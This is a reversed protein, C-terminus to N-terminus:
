EVDERLTEERIAQFALTLLARGVSERDFNDGVRLYIHKEGWHDEFRCQVDRPVIIHLWEGSM